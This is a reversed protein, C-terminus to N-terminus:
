SRLGLASLVSLQLHSQSGGVRGGLSPTLGAIWEEGSVAWNPDAQLMVVALFTFLTFALVLVLSLREILGYPWKCSSSGTVLAMLVAYISADHSANREEAQGRLALLSKEM